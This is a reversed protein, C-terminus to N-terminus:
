KIPLFEKIFLSQPKINISKIITVKLKNISFLVIGNYQKIGLNKALERRSNACSLDHLNCEGLPKNIFLFQIRGIIPTGRVETIEGTVSSEM